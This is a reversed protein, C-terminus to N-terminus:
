EAVHELVAYCGPNWGYCLIYLKGDVVVGAANHIHDFQSLGLDEKPKLVSVTQDGRLIGVVGPGWNPGRLCGAVTLREGGHEVFDIDCVTGPTDFGSLFEGDTTLRQAWRRERDAIVLAGDTPDFTVGHSTSFLGPVRGRIPVKAGFKYEGYEMADLDITFCSKSEGYGDVVYAKGDAALDVDTPRYAGKEPFFKPKPLSKLVTGDLKCIHVNGGGNDPLLLLGGDRDAYACNHLGGTALRSDAATVLTKTKLDASLRILGTGELGFYLEGTPTKAFGGHAPLIGKAIEAPLESLEANYKFKLDGSGTTAGPTPETEGTNATLVGAPPGHDHGEHGYTAQTAFLTLTLLSLILTRM